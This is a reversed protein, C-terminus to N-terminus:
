IYKLILLLIVGPLGLIGSVLINFLKLELEVGFSAGIINLLVLMILGMLMHILFKFICKIPSKLLTILVVIFIVAIVAIVIIVGAGASAINSLFERM